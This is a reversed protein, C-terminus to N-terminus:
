GSILASLDILGRALDIDGSAAIYRPSWLPSFKDKYFRLGEFGYIREGHRFVLNGAHAWLPALRRADLGALPAMGLSFWRYGSRKGWLMLESFLVDMASFGLGDGHRMLDVSLENRNATAWINAFAVIRGQQRIVACDFRSLYDGDFRGLSFAKEARGKHGLWVDSVAGLEPLIAPVDAMPVIEFEAEEIKARRLAYRLSKAQPGDLTFATLDVRAEEGYKMLTLGMDIATPLGDATLQYFLTRGQERDAQERLRWMLDAWGARAGVPDGMAIWSRGQVQYALIADDTDSYLFRKDGTIALMADSRDALSLAREVREWDADASVPAKRPAMMHRFLLVACLIAIALQARLFRAADGHLEFQWWLDSQYEVHKFAFFGIAASAMVIAAAALLWEPTLIDTTLATRRYFAGRSWQLLTVLGFLITAEEYDFGKLLSFLIGLVLLTRTLLFAGDLRRYLGPALLLLLTGVLSAAIHSAEVFPLPLFHGLTRLRAQDAPLAGSVLLVLGGALTLGSILIPALGHSLTRADSIRSSLAHRLRWGERAVAIVTAIALPCIYYLGRFVLLAAALEARDGHTLSSLMAAEFIGLGGPAHSVISIAIAIGYAALFDPYTVAAGAPLLIYLTGAALSIDIASVLAMAIAHGPKPLPLTWGFLKLRRARWSAAILVALIALILSGAVHLLPTGILHRAFVLAEDRLLLSTGCILGLGMSFGLGINAQVRAVDGTKLGSDGYIRARVSGGTVAALGLNHSLAFSVFSAVLATRYPLPTGAIRLALVDYLSLTLYSGTAFLVATGIQRLAITALAAKVDSLTIGEMMRHILFIACGILFLGIVAVILGGRARIAALIHTARITM